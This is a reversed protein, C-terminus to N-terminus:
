NKSKLRSKSNPPIMWARSCTVHMEDRGNGNIKAPKYNFVAM